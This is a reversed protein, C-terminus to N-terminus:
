SQSITIDDVIVTHATSSVYWVLAEVQVVGAETPTFQLTVLNRSTDDPCNSVIDQAADSWAIQGYRCRLAGAVGTGSKKFYATITVQGSSAVAFRAMPLCLPYVSNRIPNTPSFKWERGTGGATANQTVIIGNDTYIYSQGNMDNIYLYGGNYNTFGSVVKTSEALSAKNIYNYFSNSYIAANSNDMTSLTGYFFNNSSGALYIGYSNSNCTPSTCTNNNSSSYYYIGCSNSNCTPSTCTNNNSSAYYYIGYNNSNCTPSTCTNNSSANHYIGTGYSNSNCTPSTCTNNNSSAYYIGYSSNSNCTPSTCTNNNSANYYIGYNYRLFHLRSINTYGKFSLYLGYGYRNNFTGHMQRFYTQGTQMETSLNWGGSIYLFASSTGSSSVIQINTTSSAAAGTDTVGLKKSSYGSITASPYKKLLTASTNSVLTIVEYYQGDPALIFDGIVLETTFLTGSGTVTTSNLIFGVTGTLATPDPSKEVRVEDGGTLGTSAKDITKYPLTKSGNGTTDSGTAWSCYKITM